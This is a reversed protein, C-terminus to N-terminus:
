VGYNAARSKKVKYCYRHYVYSKSIDGLTINFVQHFRGKKILARRKKRYNYDVLIPYTWFNFRNDEFGKHVISWDQEDCKSSNDGHVNMKTTDVSTKKQIEDCNESDCNKIGISIPSQPRSPISEGDTYSFTEHYYPDYIDRFLKPLDVKKPAACCFCICNKIGM